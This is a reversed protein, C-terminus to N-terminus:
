IRVGPIGNKEIEAYVQENAIQEEPTSQADEKDWQEFLALASDRGFAPFAEEYVVTVKATMPIQGADLRELLETVTLEAIQTM